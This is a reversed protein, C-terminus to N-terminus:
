APKEKKFVQTSGNILFGLVPSKTIATRDFLFSAGFALAYLLLFSQWHGLGLFLLAPFFLVLLPQHLLYVSYSAAGADKMFGKHAPLACCAGILFLAFALGRMNLLYNYLIGSSLPPLMLSTLCASAALATAVRMDLLLHFADRMRYFVMGLLYFAFYLFLNYVSVFLIKDYPVAKAAFQFCLCLFPTGFFLAAAWIYKNWRPLRTKLLPGAFACSLATYALLNGIFWLHGLWDGHLLYAAFNDAYDRRESMRNMLTNLTMGIFLLPVGLRVLRSGVAKKLGHREYSFAFFYGALLYFGHMIFSILFDALVDYFENRDIYAVRWKPDAEFVLSTHYLVVLITLAARATDFGDNRNQAAHPGPLTTTM